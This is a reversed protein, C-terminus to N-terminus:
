AAETTPRFLRRALVGRRPAFLISAAALATACLVITPGTPVPKRPQSLAHSLVTGAVGAAAGFV